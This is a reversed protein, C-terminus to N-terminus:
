YINNDMIYKEISDYVEYPSVSSICEMNKKCSTSLCPKCEMNKSFVYVNKKAYPKALEPDIPGFVVFTPIAYASAIHGAGSDNCIMVDCVSIRSVYESINTESVCFRADCASLYKAVKEVAEEEKPGKFIVFYCDKYKSALLSALRGFGEWQKIKLSAGPHIGIIIKGEIKEENIFKSCMKKQLESLVLSPYKEDEEYFCGIKKAFFLKDEVLHKVDPNPTIVDTLFCEGGTYNYSVKRNANCFHMFFIYRLDGRPELAYDYHCTNIDDLVKKIDKRDLLLNKPSNLLKNDIIVFRDILNQSDLLSKAWKGCVLTIQINENNRKIIRLFSTLMVIDGILTPDIILLKDAKKIDPPSSSKREHFVIKLLNNVLRLRKTKQPNFKEMLM